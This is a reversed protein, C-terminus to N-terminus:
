YEWVVKHLSTSVSFHFDQWRVSYTTSSHLHLNRYAFGCPSDDKIFQFSVNVTKKEEGDAYLGVNQIFEWSTRAAQAQAEVCAVLPGGIINGFPLSQLSSTAAEAASRDIAM